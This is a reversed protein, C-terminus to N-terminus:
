LSHLKKMDRLRKYYEDRDIRRGTIPSTHLIPRRSAKRNFLSFPFVFMGMLPVHATRESRRQSQYHM